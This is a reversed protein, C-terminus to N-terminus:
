YSANLTLLASRPRGYAENAAWYWHGSIHSYYVKDFVNNIDLKVNLNQTLRYTASLDVVARADQQNRVIEGYANEWDRYMKSQWNIRGGLTLRNLAGPLIYQTSLKFSTTPNMTVLRKGVNAPNADKRYRTESWTLGAGIQWSPTLAGQLEIDVGETRVLGAAAYCGEAVPCGTQDALYIARNSEDIRFLAISGNLAGDLYEGKVGVEYNKGVKPSLVSGSVNRENQPQFVDTYSVYASHQDAFKWTLGAYKTLHANESWSMRGSDFHQERDYWDLRAGLLLDLTDTMNFRGASYLSDQKYHNSYQYLWPSTSSTDPRPATHNWTSLDIGSTIPADWGEWWESVRSDQRNVTAGFVLDHQRGFWSVPGSVNLDAAKQKRATQAAWWVHGHGGVDPTPILVTALMGYRGDVYTGNFDLKWGGGFDHALNAYLTDAQNKNYEWDAGVFTSRPLDLHRFGYSTPMGGWNLNKNSYLHSYGINLTTRETLDVDITAYGLRKDNFALDYFDSADQIYAVARGRVRGDETLPGSADAMLRYDDWSGASVSGKFQRTSTPRKRVMNVAASPNGGGQMLGTAGRVVEVRDQMALNGLSDGSYWDYRTAIGDQTVSEIEYGRSQLVPRIDQSQLVLGPTARAIDTLDVLNDAEIRASTLVTVSQPTERMSLPLHTASSMSRTTFSGTGETTGSREAAATVTVPALATEGAAAPLRYLTYSGDNRAEAALGTGQLLRALGGALDHSGRLGPSRLGATLNTSFGLTIGAERGFRNLAAELPGAPIDYTRQVAAKAASATEAALAPVAIGLHAVALALLSLRPLHHRPM